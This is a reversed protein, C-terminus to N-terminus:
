VAASTSVQADMWAEIDDAVRHPAELMPIHGLDPYRVVEWDPRRRSLMAMGAPVVLRDRGGHLLLTPATVGEVARWVKSARPGILLLMSRAAELLAARAYPMERRQRALEVHEAVCAQDLTDYDAGSLALTHRVQQEPTTLRQRLTLAREGVWPLAMLGFDFLVRGNIATSVPRPTSPAILVLGAILQPQAGALLLSLLGGLSNGLLMVPRDPSVTRIFGALLDRNDRVDARRGTRPTLGFGALDPAWVTGHRVLRPALLSWNVHSGGLGHVCVFVPGDDPGDWRATHVEVDSSGRRLNTLPVTQWIRQM